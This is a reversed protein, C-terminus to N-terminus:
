HSEGRIRISSYERIRGMDRFFKRHINYWPFKLHAIRCDETEGKRHDMQFEIAGSLEKKEREKWARLPRERDLYKRVKKRM